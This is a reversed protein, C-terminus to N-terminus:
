RRLVVLGIAESVFDVLSFQALHMLVKNPQGVLDTLLKPEILIRTQTDDCLHILEWDVPCPLGTLPSSERQERRIKTLETANTDSIFHTDFEPSRVWIRDVNGILESKGQFRVFLSCRQPFLRGDFFSSGHRMVDISRFTGLSALSANFFPDGHPFLDSAPQGTTPRHM